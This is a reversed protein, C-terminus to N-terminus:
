KFLKGFLVIFGELEDISIDPAEYGNDDIGLKTSGVFFKYNSIYELIRLSEQYKKKFIAPSPFTYWYEEHSFDSYVEAEDKCTQWEYNTCLIDVDKIGILGNEYITKTMFNHLELLCARNDNGLKTFTESDEKSVRKVFLDMDRESEFKKAYEKKNTLAYLDYRKKSINENEPKKYYRWIKM